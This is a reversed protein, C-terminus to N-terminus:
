HSWWLISLIFLMKREMKSEKMQFSYFNILKKEKQSKKEKASVKTEDHQTRAFSKNTSCNCSQILATLYQWLNILKQLSFLNNSSLLLLGDKKMQNAMRWGWKKIKEPKKKIMSNCSAKLKMKWNRSMLLLIKMIRSGSQVFDITM